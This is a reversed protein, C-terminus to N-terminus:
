PRSCHAVCCCLTNVSGHHRISTSPLPSVDQHKLFSPSAHPTTECPSHRVQTVLDQIARHARTQPKGSGGSGIRDSSGSLVTIGARRSGRGDAKTVHLGHGECNRGHQLSRKEVTRLFPTAISFSSASGAFVLLLLIRRILAAGKLMAVDM